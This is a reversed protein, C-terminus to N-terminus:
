PSDQERCWQRALAAFQHGRDRFDTFWGVSSCGPSLLVMDGPDSLEVARLFATSFDSATKIVPTRSVARSQRVLETLCDATPGIAVLARSRKAIERAADALSSGKDHGGAILVCPQTASQLAAVLSEPTTAASDDVFTRSRGVAVVQMRHPLGTFERLVRQVQIDESIAMRCAAVAAAVNAHNHRGRLAPSIAIRDADERGLIRQILVGNEFYVGDEGNDELGFRLCQSRHPWSICSAPLVLGDSSRQGACIVQKSQVYHEYSPHWDLHNAALSTIVAVDPRFRTHKLWHLQFSSLEMVVLDRQRIQPLVPLLSNGINGGLWIRRKEGVNETLLHHILQCTTSKGNSGTVAITFAPNSNLFIETESSVLIGRDRYASVVRNDPKVAPNVILLECRRFAEEPHGGLYLGELTCGQIQDVSNKLDSETRLDTLSIRAGQQALYKTVAVGGGFRGLGMVTVHVDTLNSKTSFECM